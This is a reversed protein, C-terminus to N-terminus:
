GRTICGHVSRGCVSFDNPPSSIIAVFIDRGLNESQNLGPLGAISSTITTSTGYYIATVVTDIVTVNPLDLAGMATELAHDLRSNHSGMAGVFEQLCELVQEETPEFTGYVQGWLYPYYKMEQIREIVSSMEMGMELPNGFTQRSQTSVDPARQDWFLLPTEGRIASYHASFSAVNGLPQSNRTTLKGEVGRSFAVNDSFAINQKHCSACSVSRDKSLNKDYFLVRGLGAKLDNAQTIEMGLIGLYEPLKRQYSNNTPLERFVTEIYLLDAASNPLEKIDIDTTKSCASLLVIFTCLYLLHKM